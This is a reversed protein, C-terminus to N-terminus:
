MHTGFYLLFFDRCLYSRELITIQTEELLMMNKMWKSRKTSALHCRTSTTSWSVSRWLLCKIKGRPFFQKVNRANDRVFATRIIQRSNIHIRGTRSVLLYIKSFKMYWVMKKKAECAIKFNRYFHNTSFWFAISNIRIKFFYELTNAPYDISALCISYRWCRKNKM